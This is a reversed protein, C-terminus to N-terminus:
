KRVTLKSSTHITIYADSMCSVQSAVGLHTLVWLNLFVPTPPEPIVRGTSGKQNRTMTQSMNECPIGGGTSLSPYSLERNSLVPFILYLCPVSVQVRKRFDGGM